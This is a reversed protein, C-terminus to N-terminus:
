GGVLKAYLFTLMITGFMLMMAYAPPDNLIAIRSRRRFYAEEADEQELAEILADPYNVVCECFDCIASTMSSSVPAEITAGCNECTLSIVVM